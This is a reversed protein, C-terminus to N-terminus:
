LTLKMDVVDGVTPVNEGKMQGVSLEPESTLNM